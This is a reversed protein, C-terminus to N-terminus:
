NGITSTPAYGSPGARTGFQYGAVIFMRTDYTDDNCGFLSVVNVFTRNTPRYQLSPGIALSNAAAGRAGAVSENTYVVEVGVMLKREIVTYGLANSWSIETTREGATEQEFVINSGFFSRPGLEDGLLLKAEYVNPKNQPGGREVWEIYLTPNLPIVDWDALAWRLELQVGEHNAIQQGNIPESNWREYVDLQFRHPLGIAYEELYRYKMTGDKEWTPRVWQEVQMVGPPLVYVRTTSFPRQTTWQPQGYPGVRDSDSGILGSNWSISGDPNIESNFFDDYGDGMGNAAMDPEVLVEPLTGDTDQLPQAWAVRAAAGASVAVILLPAVASMRM